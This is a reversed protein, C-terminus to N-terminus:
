DPMKRELKSDIQKQLQEQSEMQNQNIEELHNGYEEDEMVRKAATNPDKYINYGEKMMAGTSRLYNGMLSGGERSNVQARSRSSSSSTSAGKVNRIFFNGQAVITNGLKYTVAYQGPKMRGFEQHGIGFFTHYYDEQGNAFAKTRGEITQNSPTKIEVDFYLNVPDKSHTQFSIHSYIARTSYDNFAVSKKEELFSPNKTFASEFFTLDPNMLDSYGGIKANSSADILHAFEDVDKSIRTSTHFFQDNPFYAEIHYIGFGDLNQSLDFKAHKSEGIKWSKSVASEKGQPDKILFDIDFVKGLLEKEPETFKFGVTLSQPISNNSSSAVTWKQLAPLGSTNLYSISLWDVKASTSNCLVGLYDGDINHYSITHVLTKNVFFQYTGLVKRITLLNYGNENIINSVNRSVSKLTKGNWRTYFQFKNSNPELGFFNHNDYDLLDWVIGYVRGKEDGANKIEAEIEFDNDGYIDLKKLSWFVKGAEAKVIYNGDKIERHSPDTKWRNENNEFQEAFLVTKSLGEYDIKRASESIKIFGWKGNEGRVAAFGESFPEALSFSEGILLKGDSGVFGYKQYADEMIVYGESQEFPVMYKEATNGETDIYTYDGWKEKQVRAYGGMFPDARFFQFDIVLKGTWDVYGTSQYKGRSDRKEVRIYDEAYQSLDSNEIFVSGDSNIVGKKEGIRARIFRNYMHGSIRDIKHDYILEGTRNIIGFKGNQGKVMANGENFEMAVLYQPEIILEGRANIYGWKEGDPSVAAFGDSFSAAGLYQSAIIMEGSGNIYGWKKKLQVPALGEEFDKADNYIFEAVPKGKTDIFGWKKGKSVRAYGNHFEDGHSYLFDIALDYNEDIYGRKYDEDIALALGDLFRPYIERAELLVIGSKDIVTRKSVIAKGNKFVPPDSFQYDIVLKGTTDICGWIFGRSEPNEKAVPAIGDSFSEADDFQYDVVLRYNDQSFSNLCLLIFFLSLISKM